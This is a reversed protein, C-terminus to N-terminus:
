INQELLAYKSELYQTNLKKINKVGHCKSYVVLKEIFDNFEIFLTKNKICEQIYMECVDKHTKTREELITQTNTIDCINQEDRDIRSKDEVVGNGYYESFISFIDILYNVIYFYTSKFIM